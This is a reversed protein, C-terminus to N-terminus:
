SATGLTRWARRRWRHSLETENPRHPREHKDDSYEEQNTDRHSVCRQWRRALNCRTTRAPADAGDRLRVHACADFVYSLVCNEPSKGVPMAAKKHRIVALM